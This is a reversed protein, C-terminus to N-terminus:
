AVRHRKPQIYLWILKEEIHKQWRQQQISSDLKVEEQELLYLQVVCIVKSMMAYCEPLHCRKAPQKCTATCQMARANRTTAPLQASSM